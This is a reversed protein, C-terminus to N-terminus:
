SYGSNLKGLLKTVLPEFNVKKDYNKARIEQNLLDSITCVRRSMNKIAELPRMNTWHFCTKRECFETLNFWECPIVHDVHWFVGHNNWSMDSTFNSQIWCVFDDMSIGVLELLDVHKGTYFKGLRNRIIISMKYTMDIQRRLRHQETQRKQITDRNEINYQKNYESVIERNEEKWKKNYESVKEKNRSKYEKCRSLKKQRSCEECMKFRKNPMEFSLNCVKCIIEVM